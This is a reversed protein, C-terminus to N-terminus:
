KLSEYYQIRQANEAIAVEGKKIAWSTFYVLIVKQGILAIIDVIVVALICITPVLFQVELDTPEIVVLPVVVIFAVAAALVCCALYFTENFNAYIRNSLLFVVVGFCLPLANSILLLSLITTDLTKSNSGCLSSVTQHSLDLHHYAAYPSISFWTILLICNPLLGILGITILFPVPSTSPRQLKAAQRFYWLLRLQKIILTPYVLSIGIPLLWARLGCMADNNDFWMFAAVLCTIMGCLIIILSTPASAKLNDDSRNVYVWVISVVCLVIAIGLGAGIAILEASNLDVRRFCQSVGNAIEFPEWGEPCAVLSVSFEFPQMIPPLSYISMNVTLPLLALCAASTSFAFDFDMALTGDSFPSFTSEGELSFCAPPADHSVTMQIISDASVVVNELVDHVVGHVVVRVGPWVLIPAGIPKNTETVADTLTVNTLRFPDSAYETGYAALNADFTGKSIISLMDCAELTTQANTGLYVTGGLSARNASFVVQNVLYPSAPQLFCGGDKQEQSLFLASGSDAMNSSFNSDALSFWVQPSLFVGAGLSAQNSLFLLGSGDFNTSTSLQIAGGSFASNQSFVSDSLQLSSLLGAFIGGGFQQAINHDFFSGSLHLVIRGNLYVAAGDYDVRNRLFSVGSLTLTTYDTATFGKIFYWAGGTSATNEEFSTNSVVVFDDAAILDISSFIAGGVGESSCRKFSSSDIRLPQVSVYSICGGDASATNNEFRTDSVSLFSGGTAKIAGGSIGASNNILQCNQVSVTSVSSLFLAGAENIAHNNEFLCDIFTITSGGFSYYAAGFLATNDFFRCREWISVATSGDDIVGGYDSYGRSFASDTVHTFSQEELLFMGSWCGLNCRIKDFRLRQLHATNSGFFAFAGGLGASFNTLTLDDITVQSSTAYLFGGTASYYIGDSIGNEFECSHIEVVSKDCSIGAGSAGNFSSAGAYLNRVRLSSLLLHSGATIAVLRASHQCDITVQRSSGVLKLFTAALSLGCNGVAPLPTPTPTELIM